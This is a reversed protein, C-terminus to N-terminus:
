HAMADKFATTIMYPLLHDRRDMQRQFRDFKEVLADLGGLSMREVRMATMDLGTDAVSSLRPQQALVAAIENALQHGGGKPIVAEQGHLTAQQAQGFNMFDLGPTGMRFGAESNKIQNVNAWGAALAGAAAVLNWPWPSSALSKAVAMYTSIIAGAIAAAKHKRGLEGLIQMTGTLVAEGASLEYDRRRGSATQKALESADHAKKLEDITFLGSALMEKYTRDATDATEQLQARTTFGQEKAREAITKSAGTADDAMQKYKANVMAVLQDYETKHTLMLVSLGDLERQRAIDIEALRLQTGALNSLTMEQQLTTFKQGILTFNTTWRDQVPQVSGEMSKWLEDITGIPEALDATALWIDNLATPADRGLKGYADIGEGIVKNLKVKEDKTLKTLGGIKPLAELWLNAAKVADGGGMSDVLKQVAAQHLNTAATAKKAAEQSEELTKNFKEEEAATAAVVTGVKGVELTFGSASQQAQNLAGVLGNPDNVARYMRNLQSTAVGFHEPNFRSLFDHVGTGVFVFAEYVGAGWVISQQKLAELEDGIQDLSQITETSMIAAQAGVEEMGSKIAPLIEKWNKGFIAAAASAQDTPDQIGKIGDALVVMQAYPDLRQFAEFNIGLKKIAGTAGSNDDGLRQQLNQIASVLSGMSTGSQGAIHQLRQVQDTTLGTQDAMKKITDAAQLVERAFGMVAGVSLASVLVTGMKRAASQVGDFSSQLGETATAARKVGDQLGTIDAAIRYIVNLDAM